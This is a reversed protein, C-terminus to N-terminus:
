TVIADDALLVQNMHDISNSFTEFFCVVEQPGEFPRRWSTFHVILGSMKCFTSIGAVPFVTDVAKNSPHVLTDVM